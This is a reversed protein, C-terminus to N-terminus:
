RSVLKFAPPVGRGALRPRQSQSLQIHVRMLDAALEMQGREMQELIQIHELNSQVLRFVNVHGSVPNNRRRRHHNVLAEAMFPNGCSRAVLMHFDFDTREFLRRDFAAENMSKLVLMSQRLSTLAPMDRKFEPLTLALPETVLRFEYSKSVADASIAFQKLIWQQGPAREALNEDCLKLLANLVTQRSVSYRRQLAAITQMGSIRGAALDRLIAAYIETETTGESAHDLRATVSPDAVLAFGGEAEATVLGREALIQLAKRIPTRSVSCLSALAQEALREGPSM